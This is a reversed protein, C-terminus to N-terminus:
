VCSGPSAPLPVSGQPPAQGEAGQTMPLSAPARPSPIFSDRLSVDASRTRGPGRAGRGPQNGAPLCLAPAVVEASGELAAESWLCRTGIHVCGQGGQASAGKADLELPWLCSCLLWTPGQQVPNCLPPQSNQESGLFGTDM